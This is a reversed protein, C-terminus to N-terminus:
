SDNEDKCDSNFFSFSSVGIEMWDIINRGMGMGGVMNGGMGIGGIM